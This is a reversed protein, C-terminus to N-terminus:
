TPPQREATSAAGLARLKELMTVANENEPNLELSKEYHEIAAEREGGTMLAEGLSDWTNFADPFLRVNLQFVAIADASEGTPASTACASLVCCLAGVTFATVHM